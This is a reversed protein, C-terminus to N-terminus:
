HNEDSGGEAMLEREAFAMAYNELRYFYDDVELWVSVVVGATSPRGLLIPTVRQGVAFLPAPQENM